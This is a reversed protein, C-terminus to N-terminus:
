LSKVYGFNKFDADFVDDIIAKTQETFHKAFDSQGSSNQYLADDSTRFGLRDQVAGFEDAFKEYRVLHTYDFNPLLLIRSQPVWHGDFEAGRTVRLFDCFLEFSPTDKRQLSSRPMYKRLVKAYYDDSQLSKGAFKNKYISVARDYPNRVVGLRIVSDSKAMRYFIPLGIDRPDPMKTHKRDHTYRPDCQAGQLVTLYQVIFTSCNKPVSVYIVRDPVVNIFYGPAYSRREMEAFYEVAEPHSRKTSADRLSNRIQRVTRKAVRGFGLM